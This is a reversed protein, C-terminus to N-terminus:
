PPPPPGEELSSAPLPPSCPVPPPHLLSLWFPEKCLCYRLRFSKRTRHPFHPSPGCRLATIHRAGPPILITNLAINKIHRRSYYLLILYLCVPSAPLLYIEIVKGKEAAQLRLGRSRSDKGCGGTRSLAPRQSVPIVNGSHAPNSHGAHAPGPSRFCPFSCGPRFSACRADPTRIM